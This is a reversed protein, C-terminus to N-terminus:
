IHTLDKVVFSAITLGAVSPVFSVSGIPRRVGEYEKQEIRDKIDIAKEKSYLVKLKKIGMKKLEIRMKKALPCVSTKYIDTIEFQSPDLKNGTGMSSIIKIGLEEANKILLLKSPVSDIADVIYDCSSLDIKDQTDEDYFISKIEVKADPNIDLVRKKAEDTKHKGINNSTAIIQRNLNSPAIVDNDILIYNEIGCRVLGELVFGGVGGLGFLAIKKNRLEDVKEKTLLLETRILDM